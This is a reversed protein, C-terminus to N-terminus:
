NRPAYVRPPQLLLPRDVRKQTQHQGNM